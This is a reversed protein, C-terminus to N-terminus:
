FCPDLTSTAVRAVHVLNMLPQLAFALGRPRWDDSFMFQKGGGRWWVSACLVLCLSLGVRPNLNEDYELNTIDNRM